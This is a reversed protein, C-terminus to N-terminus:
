DVPPSYMWLYIIDTGATSPASVFSLLLLCNNVRDQPSFFDYSSNKFALNEIIFALNGPLYSLLLIQPLFFFVMMLRHLYLVGQCKWALIPLETARVCLIYFMHHGFILSLTGSRPPFPRDHSFGQVKDLLEFAKLKKSRLNRSM